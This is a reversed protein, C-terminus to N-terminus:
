GRQWADRFFRVWNGYCIGKIAAHDYGRRRLMEPLRQLDAITDLDRPSMTATERRSSTTYSQNPM